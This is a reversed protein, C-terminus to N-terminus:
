ESAMLNSQKVPAKLKKEMLKKILPWVVHAQAEDNSKPKASPSQNQLLEKWTRLEKTTFQLTGSIRRLNVKPLRLFHQDYRLAQLLGIPFSGQWLPPGKVLLEISFLRV